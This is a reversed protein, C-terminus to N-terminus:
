PVDKIDSKHGDIVVVQKRNSLYSRLLILCSGEVSIQELKALLGGHWVKDFASSVDLFIGQRIRGQSWSTRILHVIYMLQNVTSDGKLYAAQRESIIHNDTFHSLLRSHIISELAKGLTPLLSIPRYSSKDSKLFHM